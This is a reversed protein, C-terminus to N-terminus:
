ARHRLPATSLRIVLETALEIRTSGPSRGDYLNMLIRMAEHGLQQFPQRMASLPPSAMSAVLTDDFSMVSLDDPVTVGHKRAAELVGLAQADSAAFIATPPHDAALLHGTAELAEAYDFDTSQVLAPDYTLGAEELAARYGHLRAAGAESHSRGAVMGIRTHGLDLLHQVATRAGNWNTVGVSPIGLSPARLPDILVVPLHQDVIRRQDQETLMSIVIILGVADTELCEELWQSISRRGTTGLVVDVDAEASAEVIGRTIELTYPGSLDRFVALIQRPGPREWPRVYGHRDLLEEVKARTDAAVDRRRHVVKSVTAPSVGAEEAITALVGYQASRQSRGSVNAGSRKM